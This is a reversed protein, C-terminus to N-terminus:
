RVRSCVVLYMARRAARRRSSGSSSTRAAMWTMLTWSEFSPNEGHPHDWVSVLDYGLEEALVAEGVPDSRPSASPVVTVGFRVRM